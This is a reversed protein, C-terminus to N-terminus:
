VRRNLVLHHVALLSGTWDLAGVGDGRIGAAGDTVGTQILTDNVMVSM